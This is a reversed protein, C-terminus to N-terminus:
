DSRAQWARVLDTSQFHVYRNVMALTTHGLARQLVLSDVGAALARSAFTHRFKHPHTHIGTKESLRQLLSKLAEVGIPVYDGTGPSKRTSLWLHPDSTDKPRVTRIYHLLKRSFRDRATDLPVIRDKRGKGQRVHLYPGDAGEVIDDIRVNIIESRRLGTRIMFQVLMRDRECRCADLLAREDAASFTEPATVPELPAPVDLSEPAVGYGERACFGFFNRFVRHFTGATGASLGADLLETQFSRLKDPTVDAVSRIRYDDVFQRTRPGTLYGKYGTLTAPSCNRSRADRLFAGVADDWTRSGTPPGQLQLPQWDDVKRRPRVPAQPM